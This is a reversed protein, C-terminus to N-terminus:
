KKTEVGAKVHTFFARSFWKEIGKTNREKQLERTRQLIEHGDM